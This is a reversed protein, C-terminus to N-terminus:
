YQNQFNFDIHKIKELTKLKPAWSSLAGCRTRTPEDRALVDRALRVQLEPGLKLYPRVCFRHLGHSAWLIIKLCLMCYSQM